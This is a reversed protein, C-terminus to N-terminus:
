QLTKILNESQGDKFIVLQNLFFASVHVSKLLAQGEVPLTLIDAMRAEMVGNTEIYSTVNDYELQEGYVRLERDALLSTTEFGVRNKHAIASCTYIAEIRYIGQTIFRISYDNILDSGIYLKFQDKMPRIGDDIKIYASYGYTKGDQILGLHFKSAQVGPQSILISGWGHLDSACSEFGSSNGTYGHSHALLNVSGPELRYGKCRKNIVDYGIRPVNPEAMKLFGKKDIFHAPTPRSFPHEDFTRTDSNFSAVFGEKFPGPVIVNMCNVQSNVDLGLLGKEWEAKDITYGNAELDAYLQDMDLDDSVQVTQAPDGKILMKKKQTKFIM